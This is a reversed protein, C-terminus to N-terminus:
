RGAQLRRSLVVAAQGWRADLRALLDNSAVDSRDATVVRHLRQQAVDCFIVRQVLRNRGTVLRDRWLVRVQPVIAPPLRSSDLSPILRCRFLRPLPLEHM